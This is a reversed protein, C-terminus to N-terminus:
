TAPPIPLLQWEYPDNSFKFIRTLAICTKDIVLYTIGHGPDTDEYATLARIGVGRLTVSAVKDGLEDRLIRYASHFGLSMESGSFVRSVRSRLHADLQCYSSGLPLVRDDPLELQAEYLYGAGDRFNAYKAFYEGGKRNEAFYFGWGLSDGEGSRIADESFEGFYARGGHWVSRHM